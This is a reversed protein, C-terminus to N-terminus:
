YEDIDMSDETENGAEEDYEPMDSDEAEEDFETNAPVEEDQDTDMADQGEDDSEENSEDDDSSYLRDIDWYIESAKRIWLDVPNIWSEPCTQRNGGVGLPSSNQSPDLTGQRIEELHKAVLRIERKRQEIPESEDLKAKKLRIVGENFLPISPEGDTKDFRGLVRQKEAENSEMGVIGAEDQVDILNYKRREDLVDPYRLLSMFCWEFSKLDLKLREQMRAPRGDRIRIPEPVGKQGRKAEDECRILAGQGRSRGQLVDMGFARVGVKWFDESQMDEYFTVPIPYMEQTEPLEPTKLVPNASQEAWRTTPWIAQCWFGLPLTMGEFGDEPYRRFPEPIGSFVKHEFAYGIEALQTSGIYPEPEGRQAREADEEYKLANWISHMTEHVLINAAFWELSMKEADTLDPRLLPLVVQYALFSRFKSHRNERKASMVSYGWTTIKEATKEPKIAKEFTCMFGFEMAHKTRLVDLTTRLKKQIEEWPRKTSPSVIQTLRKPDTLPPCREEEVQKRRGFILTDFWPLMHMNPLLYTAVQLAPKLAKKVIQNRMEWYGSTNEPQYPMLHFGFLSDRTGNEDYEELVNETTEWRRLIDLIPARLTSAKLRRSSIADMDALERSTFGYLWQRQTNERKKENTRQLREEKKEEETLDCENRAFFTLIPTYREKHRRGALWEHASLPASLPYVSRRRKAASLPTSEPNVSKRRKAASDPKVSRPRKATTKPTTTSYSLIASTVTRKPNKRTGAM